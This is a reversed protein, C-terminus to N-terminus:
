GPAEWLSSISLFLHLCMDFPCMLWDSLPGLPWLWHLKFLLVFVLVPNHTWIFMILHSILYILCFLDKKYFFEGGPPPALDGCGKLLPQVKFLCCICLFIEVKWHLSRASLVKVLHCLSALMMLSTTHTDSEGLHYILLASWGHLRRELFRNGWHLWSFFILCIWVSLCESLMDGYVEFSHLDCLSSTLVSFWVCFVLFFYPFAIHCEPNSWPVCFFINCVPTLPLM